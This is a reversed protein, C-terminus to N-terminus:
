SMLVSGEYNPCITMILFVGSHYRGGHSSVFFLCFQSYALFLLGEDSVLDALFKIKSKGAEMVMLSLIINKQLGGLRHYKQLLRFLRFCM